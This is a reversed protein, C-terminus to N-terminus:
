SDSARSKSEADLRKQLVQNMQGWVLGIDSARGGAAKFRKYVEDGFIAKALRVNENEVLKGNKRHPVMFPGKRTNGQDDKVDPHRDYSEAELQMQDYRQQQEDDLLAPNPIEFVEGNDAKVTVSALMGLFESAQERAEKASVPASSQVALSSERCPSISVEGPRGAM